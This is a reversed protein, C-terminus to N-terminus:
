NALSPKGILAMDLNTQAVWFDRLAQIYGNISLIQSQADTLLEFVSVLMGNYRLLNDDSIRKRLPVIDDRYSKALDYSTRYNFYSERVESRANTAAEAAQNVAQMYIAEAKAVKATGFDFIPLEFSINFGNKYPDSRRGELVRTPGFDLVNIFRTTKTLGLNKALADVDQKIAQLDLRQQMAVAEIDPEASPTAPIDPLHDPLKFATQDSNVGLLRILQERASVASQKARAQQAAAEAHFVLQRAQDSSSFNGAKVMKQALDSSAEAALRVQEMYTATQEAAIANFYAKRTESALSLVELTVQKKTQEFRHQEIEKALPATVLSFINFTLSQEIKFDGHHSAELMSFTPNPLQSAQVLSAESIGLEYFTAQLKKNNLLAVQVANDATLLNKLLEDVRQTVAIQEQDNHVWVIDKNIRDKTVQQVSNLGGDKSFTACGTLVLTALGLLALRKSMPITIKM